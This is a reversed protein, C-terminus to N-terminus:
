QVQCNKALWNLEAYEHYEGIDDVKIYIFHFFMESYDVIIGYQNLCPSM